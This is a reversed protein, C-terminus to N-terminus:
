RRRDKGTEEYYKKKDQYMKQEADHVMDLMNGKERHVFGFSAIKNHNLIVNRFEQMRKEMEENGLHLLVVFEDGSIRFFEGDSFSSSLLKAFDIILNDGAAHGFTDNAYKLGNLDFFAVGKEKNVDDQELCKDYARRNKLGTLADTHSVEDLIHERVKVEALTQAQITVYIVFLSVSATAYTFDPFHFLLVGIALLIPFILYTSLGMIFRTEIKKRYRLLVLSLYLMNILTLIYTLIHWSEAHFKHNTITFLKGNLTGAIILVVNLSTLVLIPLLVKYSTFTKERIVAVMYLSYMGLFLVIFLYALMNVFVLLTDNKTFAEALYSFADIPIAFLLVVLMWIFLRTSAKRNKKSNFLAGSLIVSMFIFSLIDTSIIYESM